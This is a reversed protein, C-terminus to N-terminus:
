NGGDKVFTSNQPDVPANPANNNNIGTIYNGNDILDQTVRNMGWNETYRFDAFTGNIFINYNSSPHFELAGYLSNNKNYYDHWYGKSDEGSYSIRYAATKSM